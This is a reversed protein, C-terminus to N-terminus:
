GSGNSSISRTCIGGLSPTGPPASIAQEARGVIAALVANTKMDPNRCQRPAPLLAPWPDTAQADFAARAM